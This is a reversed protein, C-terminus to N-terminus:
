RKRGMAGLGQLAAIDGYLGHTTLLDQRASRDHCNLSRSARLAGEVGKQNIRRSAGRADAIARPAAQIVAWSMDSRLMSAIGANRSNFFLGRARIRDPAPCAPANVPPACRAPQPVM